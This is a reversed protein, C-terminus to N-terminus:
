YQSIIYYYDSTKSDSSEEVVSDIKNKRHDEGGRESKGNERDRKSKGNEGGSQGNEYQAKGNKPGHPTINHRQHM